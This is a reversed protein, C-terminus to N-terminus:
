GHNRACIIDQYLRVIRDSVSNSDLGLKMLRERGSSSDDCKIAQMVGHIVSEPNSQVIFSGPVGDLLYRVDGVDTTVVRKNCAMAEKVVNPSGEWFSTLLVIDSANIYEPMTNHDVHHVVKMDVNENELGRISHEALPYNKEDRSPDAAFLVILKDPSWNVQKRCVLRDMPKFVELDVGNPIVHVCDLGLCKKMDESKVITASWIRKVFIRLVCRWIGSSKVDSGMLSVVMARKAAVSSTIGCFSYHAHVLDYKGQRLIQRLRPVNKLYGLIGHGIITYYDVQIGLSELSAGQAKVISS